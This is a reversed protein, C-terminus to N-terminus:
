TAVKTRLENYQSNSKAEGFLYNVVEATIWVMRNAWTWDDAPTDLDITVAYADLDLTLTRQQNLAVDLAQRLFIWFSAQRVGDGTACTSESNLFSSAGSLHAESDSGTITSAMQEFLRLLFTAAVIEDPIVDL